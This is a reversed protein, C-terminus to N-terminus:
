RETATRPSGGPVGRIRRRRDPLGQALPERSGIRRGIRREPLVEVLQHGELQHALLPTATLIGVGVQAVLGIVSDGLTDLLVARQAVSAAGRQSHFSAPLRLLREVMAAGLRVSVKTATRIALTGQLLQLAAQMALAVCLGVLVGTVLLATGGALENGYVALLQPLLMTPVILLLAIVLAMVLGGLLGAFLGGVAPENEVVLVWDRQPAPVTAGPTAAMTAPMGQGEAAIRAVQASNRELKAAPTGIVGKMKLLAKNEIQRIREASVGFEAALEHLTARHFNAVRQMKDPVVLARQRTPDQTAVGTPCHDTHCSRSQICGLAFM